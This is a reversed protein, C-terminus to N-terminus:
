YDDVVLKLYCDVEITKVGCFVKFVLRSSFHKNFLINIKFQNPEHGRTMLNNEFKTNEHCFYFDGLSIKM